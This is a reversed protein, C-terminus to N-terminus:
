SRSQPATWTSRARHAALSSASSEAESVMSGRATARARWKLHSARGSEEISETSPLPTGHKGQRLRSRDLDAGQCNSQLSSQSHSHCRVERAAPGNRDWSLSARGHPDWFCPERRTEAWVPSGGIEAALEAAKRGSRGSGPEPAGEPGWAEVIVDESPEADRGGVPEGIAASGSAVAPSGPGVSGSVSNGSVFPHCDACDERQSHTTISSQPAGSACRVGCRRRVLSWADWMLRGQTGQSGMRRPLDGFRLICFRPVRMLIPPETSRELRVPACRLAYRGRAANGLFGESLSVRNGSVFRKISRFTMPPFLNRFAIWACRMAIAGRVGNPPGAIPCLSRLCDPEGPRDM